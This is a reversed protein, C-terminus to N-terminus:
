NSKPIVKSRVEISFIPFHDSIDTAFLGNISYEKHTISAFINDILTATNDCLRTPKTIRPFLSTAYCNELFESTQVHRDANLLNINFDGLLYVMKEESNCKFLLDSLIFNFETISTNPPRYIVGVILNKASTIGTKPIEIFLSELKDCFIDLDKRRFYFIEKQIFLSVGGGIRNLRYAHESNYDPIGYVNFNNSKLWTESLAILSFQIKLENLFRTLEALHQPISRINLHFLSFNNSSVGHQMIYENFLEPEFYNCLTSTDICTMDNFFQLDPDIDTWPRVNPDDNIEFPDFLIDDLDKITLNASDNCLAAHYDVDNEIHIYPFIESCCIFCFWNTQNHFVSDEISV